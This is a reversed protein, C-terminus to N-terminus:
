TGIEWSKLYNEQEKTLKDISVGMSKLKLDAIWDEITAPLNYVKAELKKQNKIV